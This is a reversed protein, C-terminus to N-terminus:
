YFVATPSTQTLSCISQVAVGGGYDFPSWKVPLRIVVYWPGCRSTLRAVGARLRTYLDEQTRLEPMVRCARELPTHTHTHRPPDMPSGCVFDQTRRDLSGSYRIRRGGTLPSCSPPSEHLSPRKQVLLSQSYLAPTSTCYLPM